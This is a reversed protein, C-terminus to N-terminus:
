RRWRPMSGDAARTRAAGSARGSVSPRSRGSGRFPPTPGPMADRANICLNLLANELQGPDVLAPWLGASGVVEIHGLTGRCQGMPQERERPALREVRSRRVHVGQDVSHLIRGGDPMADRANICLNLLANELQGPDVLAPWLGAVHRGPLVQGEADRVGARAHGRIDGGLRELREERNATEVTIRGGDPMADRANICLNLLANELQGPDVRCQGM